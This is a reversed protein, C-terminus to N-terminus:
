KNTINFIFISIKMLLLGLALAIVSFPNKFILAIIIFTCLYMFQHTKHIKKTTKPLDEYYASYINKEILKFLIVSVISGLVYGIIISYHSPFFVTLIISILAFFIFIILAIKNIKKIETNENDDYVNLNNNIKM